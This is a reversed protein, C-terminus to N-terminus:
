SGEYDTNVFAKKGNRNVDIKKENLRNNLLLYLVYM